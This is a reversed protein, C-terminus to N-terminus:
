KGAQIAQAAPPADEGRLLRAIAPPIPTSRETAPDMAVIVMRGTAVIGGRGPDPEGHGVHWGTFAVTWSSTGVREVRAEVDLLDDFVIPGRFDCELHVRPFAAGLLTTSYPVGLSRMLAHEAVEMYRFWATFHIRHSIDVDAFAVRIRSIAQPM